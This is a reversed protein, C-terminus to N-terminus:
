AKSESRVLRGQEWVEFGYHWRVSEAHIAYLRRALLLAEEDDKADFENVGVFNGGSGLFYCRYHM